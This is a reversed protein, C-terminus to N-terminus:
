HDVKCRQDDASPAEMRRAEEKERGTEFDTVARRGFRACEAILEHFNFSSHTTSPPTPSTPLVFFFSGSLIRKKRSGNESIAKIGGM